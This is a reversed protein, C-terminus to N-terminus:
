DARSDRCLIGIFKSLYLGFALMMFFGAGDYSAAIPLLDVPLAPMVRLLTAIIMCVLALVMRRPVVLDYGSHRLGAIIFVMLIATGIAGVGFLHRLDSAANLDFFVNLGMALCGLAIWFNAVYLFQVYPKLLVRGVHFDSLRDMLAAGAGLALWGAVATEGLVVDALAFLLFTVSALNRRYPYPRFLSDQDNQEDLALRVVVMSIRTSTIVIGFVLAYMGALVARRSLDVDAFLGMWGLYVGIQAAIFLSIMVIFINHRKGNEQCLPPIAQWALVLPFLINLGFVLGLPIIDILVVSCRGLGWLGVYLALRRGHLHASSTWEPIATLLFGALAASGFGFIMEHAHWDSPTIAMPSLVIGRLVLLWYTLLVIVSFGALMFFPRFGWDLIFKLDPKM